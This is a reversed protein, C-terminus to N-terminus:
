SMGRFFHGSTSPDDLPESPSRGAAADALLARYDTVIRTASAATETHLEIRVASVGAEMVELLARSLDLPVSNYIHAFGRADTTVPFGYGKRDRLSHGQLRRGCQACDHSCTGSAQLVCHEAVMLEVRGHVMTGIAVPSERVLRALQRGSLEPSAWVLSAGLGALAEATWGNVANLGWDASVGADRSVPDQGLAALLGLNGSTAARGSALRVLAEVDAPHAIRPLLPEVWEPLEAMVDLATVALLVRSAGARHAAAAVAMDSVAVVLEPTVPTPGRRRSPAVAHLGVPVTRGTWPALRMADLSGLAERRLAHLTSFGIGVDAGLELRWGDATYGSGGLRGVHEVVEETSVARTRAVEVVSGEATATLGSAEVTVSAPEGRLLRVSFVAPTASRDEGTFTRRAAELLAANAVRFVRDGTRTAGEVVLEVRVGTPAASLVTGDLRLPGAAQTFRGAATWFELRDASEVARDLAVTAVGAGTSVVRGVPVGRNNPRQYSMMSDDRVDSLYAESFGRSFAESLLDWEADTVQYEESHAIARDLAARYVAVVTAVYEPSKMRGEIKLAAVGARVLAPLLTVGALDKPSLLYKGPADHARGDTGLLEYPLRCPQACTGRNASRGGIMSSFQCQGSHCYCLSGHVFAELEVESARVLGSIEDVSLERALTVRSVGLSRLADIAEANHADVQTSAHIRVDPLHTRLVRILGLDQVIVADVGAEWARAVMELAPDVEDPLVLVNATLYVRVGNLHAHRVSAALTDLTFNVAGRRANLEPLGLYVADAGNAVAARLADPGGAPALLEPIPSANPTDM